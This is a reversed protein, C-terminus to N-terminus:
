PRATLGSASTYRPYDDKIGLQSHNESNCYITYNAMNHSRKYRYDGLNVKRLRKYIRIAKKSHKGPFCRPIEKLYRPTLQSLSEPYLGENDTSYMELATGLNKLNSQCRTYHNRVVLSNFGVLNGMYLFLFIIIGM